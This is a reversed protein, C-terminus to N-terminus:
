LCHSARGVATASSIAHVPTPASWTTYATALSVETSSWSCRLSATINAVQSNPELQVDAQVLRWQVRVSLMEM